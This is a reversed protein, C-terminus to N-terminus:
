NSAIENNMMSLTIDIEHRLWELDGSLVLSKRANVELLAMQHQLQDKSVEPELVIDVGNEQFKYGLLNLGQFRMLRLNSLIASELSSYVISHAIENTTALAFEPLLIISESVANIIGNIDLEVLSAAAIRIEDFIDRISPTIKISGIIFDKAVLLNPTSATQTNQTTDVAMEPLSYWGLSRRSNMYEVPNGKIIKSGRDYVATTSRAFGLYPQNPRRIIVVEGSRTQLDSLPYALTGSVVSEGEKFSLGNVTISGIDESEKVEYTLYKIRSFTEDGKASELKIEYNM